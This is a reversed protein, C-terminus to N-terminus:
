VNSGTKRPSAEGAVKVLRDGVALNPFMKQYAWGNLDFRGARGDDRRYRVRVWDSSGPVTDALQEIRTVAGTWSEGAKRRQFLSIAASLVGVALIGLILGSASDSM